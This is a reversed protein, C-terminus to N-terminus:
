VWQQSTRKVPRWTIESFKSKSHIWQDYHVRGLPYVIFESTWQVPVLSSCGFKTSFGKLFVEKRIGPDLEWALKCWLISVQIQTVIVQVRCKVRCVLLGALVPKFGLRYCLTPLPPNPVWAQVQLEWLQVSIYARSKGQGGSMYCFSGFFTRQKAIQSNEGLYLMTSNICWVLSIKNFRTFGGNWCTAVHTFCVIIVICPCATWVEASM